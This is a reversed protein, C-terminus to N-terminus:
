DSVNVIAGGYTQDVSVYLDEAAETFEGKVEEVFTILDQLTRIQESQVIRKM